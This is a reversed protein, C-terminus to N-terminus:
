MRAVLRLLGGLDFDVAQAMQVGPAACINDVVVAMGLTPFGSTRPASEFPNEPSVPVCKIHPQLSPGGTDLPM